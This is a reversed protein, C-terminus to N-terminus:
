VGRCELAATVSGPPAEIFLVDAGAGAYLKARRVAGDIGELARADKRAFIPRRPM